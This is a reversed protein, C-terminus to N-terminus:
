KAGTNLAYAIKTTVSDNGTDTFSGNDPNASVEGYSTKEAVNGYSDYLFTESTDKHNQTGDWLVTTVRSPFVLYADKLILRNVWETITSTMLLGNSNYREERYARGKKSIHDEYEGFQSSISNDESFQSQHFYTKAINGDSDTAIVEYFGAYERTWINQFDYFYHGGHYEFVTKSIVGTVRDTLTKESLTHVIFPIKNAIAGDATRYSTSPKYSLTILGGRNNDITKLLYASGTETYYTFAIPPLTLDGAEETISTLFSRVSDLSDYHLIYRRVLSPVGSSSEYVSVDTLAYYTSIPFQTLYSVSASIKKTYSFRVEYLSSADTKFAYRVSNIYIQNSDQFYSYEITNGRTDTASELMWQFVHSSNAPDNQRASSDSGFRYTTGETDTVIWYGNQFVYRSMDNGLKAQYRGSSEDIATLETYKGSMKVAFDNRTYLEDVGRESRRFISSVSFDFGYGYPSLLDKKFSSYSLSLTPTFGRRGQPIAIPFQFGAEGTFLDSKVLDSFGKLNAFQDAQPKPLPPPPEDTNTTADKAEATKAEEIKPENETKSTEDTEPEELDVSEAADDKPKEGLPVIASSDGENLVPTVGEEQALVAFPAFVNSAIIALLLFTSLYKQM